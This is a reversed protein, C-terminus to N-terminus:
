LSPFLQIPNENMGWNAPLQMDSITEVPSGTSGGVTGASELRASIQYNSSGSSGSACSIGSQSCYYKMAAPPIYTYGLPKGDTAVCSGGICPDNPVNPMYKSITATFKDWAVKGATPTGDTNVGATSVAVCGSVSSTNLTDVQYKCSAWEPPSGNNDAIYSQIALDIQHIEQLRKSDKAQTRIPNITALVVSALMSVLSIVVLLEVLTFAKSTTIRYM